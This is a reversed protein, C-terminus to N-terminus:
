DRLPAGIETWIQDAFEDIQAANGKGFTSVVFEDVGADRYEGLIDTLQQPTGGIAARGAASAREAGGDGIFILAQATRRLTAPDRDRAECAANMIASKHAFVDPTAWTNWEDAYGAVIRPM